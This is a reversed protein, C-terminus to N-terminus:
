CKSDASIYRIVLSRQRGDLPLQCRDAIEIGTVGIAGNAMGGLDLIGQIM